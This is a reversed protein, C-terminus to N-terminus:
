IPLRFTTSWAAATSSAVPRNCSSLGLARYVQEVVVAIAGEIRTWNATGDRKPQAFGQAVLALRRAQSNSLTDAKTM